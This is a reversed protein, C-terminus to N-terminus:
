DYQVFTGSPLSAGCATCQKQRCTISDRCPRRLRITRRLNRIQLVKFSTTWIVDDALLQEPLGITHFLSSDWHMIHVFRIMSVYARVANTEVVCHLKIPTDLLLFM